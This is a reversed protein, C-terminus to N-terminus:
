SWRKTLRAIFFITGDACATKELAPDIWYHMNYCGDGPCSFVPYVVATLLRRAQKHNFKTRVDVPLANPNFLM